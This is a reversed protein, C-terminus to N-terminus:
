GNYAIDALFPRDVPRFVGAIVVDDPAMAPPLAKLWRQQEASVRGNETKLEAFLISGRRVAVIDPFGADGQIATRWGQSTRAPRDHHVLWGQSRFLDITWATFEEESMPISM